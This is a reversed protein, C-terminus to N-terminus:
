KEGKKGAKGKKSKMKVDMRKAGKYYGCYPCASHSKVMKKCQSCVALKKAALKINARRRNRRGTTHRQKPVSM